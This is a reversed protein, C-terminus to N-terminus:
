GAVPRAERFGPNGRDNAALLGPREGRSVMEEPLGASRNGQALAAPEQRHRPGRGAAGAATLWPPQFSM